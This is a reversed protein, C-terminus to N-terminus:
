SERKEKSERIIEHKREDKERERMKKIRRTEHNNIVQLNINKKEKQIQSEEKMSTINWKTDQEKVRKELRLKERGKIM